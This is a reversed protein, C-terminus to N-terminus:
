YVSVYKASIVRPASQIILLLCTLSLFVQSERSIGLKDFFGFGRGWLFVGWFCQLLEGFLFGAGGLLCLYCVHVALPCATQFCAPSFCFHYQM